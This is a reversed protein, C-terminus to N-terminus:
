SLGKTIKDIYADQVSENVSEIHPQAKTRGGNRNAHGYELLHTIQPKDKNYIVGVVGTRSTEKQKAWGKSYKGTEKPSNNKLEKVGDNLVEDMSEQIVETATKGYESLIKSIETGVNNISVKSM